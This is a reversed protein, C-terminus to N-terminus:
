CQILLFRSNLLPFVDRGRNRGKKIKRMYTIMLHGEEPYRCEEGVRGEDGGVVDFEHHTKAGYRTM